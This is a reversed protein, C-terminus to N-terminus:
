NDDTKLRELVMIAVCSSMFLIISTLHVYEGITLKGWDLQFYNMAIVATTSGTKHTLIWSKSVLGAIGSAGAICGVFGQLKYAKKPAM